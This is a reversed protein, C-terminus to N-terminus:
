YLKIEHNLTDEHTMYKRPSRGGESPVIVMSGVCGHCLQLKYLYVVISLICIIRHFRTM